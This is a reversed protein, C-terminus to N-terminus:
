QMASLMALTRLGGDLEVWTATTELRMAAAETVVTAAGLPRALGFSAVLPNAGLAALESRLPPAAAAAAEPTAFTLDIRLRAGDGQRVVDARSTLAGIRAFIPPPPTSEAHVLEGEPHQLGPEIVDTEGARRAAQDRAAAVIAGVEDEPAVVAEHAATLVLAHPTDRSLQSPLITEVIGQRERWAVTTGEASAIRALMARADAADEHHRLVIRWRPASPGGAGYSVTETTTVMADLQVIPDFSADGVLQQFLGSGRWLESVDSAVPTARIAECDVRLLFAHPAHLFTQTPGPPVPRAPATPASSAAGGCAVLAGAMLVTLSRAAHM